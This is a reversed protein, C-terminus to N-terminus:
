LLQLSYKERTECNCVLFSFSAIALGTSGFVLIGYRGDGFPSLLSVAFMTGPYVPVHPLISYLVTYSRDYLAQSWRWNMRNEETGRNEQRRRAGEHHTKPFYCVSKHSKLLRKFFKRDIVDRTILQEDVKRHFTWALMLCNRCINRGIGKLLGCFRRIRLNPRREGWIYLNMESLGLLVDGLWWRGLVCRSSM